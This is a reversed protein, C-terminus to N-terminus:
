ITSGRPGGHISAQRMYGQLVRSWIVSLCLVRIRRIREHSVDLLSRVGSTALPGVTCGFMGRSCSRRKAWARVEVDEITVRGRHEGRHTSLNEV